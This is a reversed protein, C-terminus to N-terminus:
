QIVRPGSVKQLKEEEDIGEEREKKMKTRRSRQLAIQLEQEAEDDEM